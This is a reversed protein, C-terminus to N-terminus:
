CGFVCRGVETGIADFAKDSVNYSVGLLGNSQIFGQVAIGNETRGLFGIRQIEISSKEALFELKSVLETLFVPNQKVLNLLASIEQNLDDDDEAMEIESIRFKGIIIKQILWIMAESTVIVQRFGSDHNEKVFTYYDIKDDYPVAIIKKVCDGRKWFLKAKKLAM